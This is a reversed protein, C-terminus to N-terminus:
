RERYIGDSGSRTSDRQGVLDDVTIAAPPAELSKPPAPPEPSPPRAKFRRGTNIDRIGSGIMIAFVIASILAIVAYVGGLIASGGMAMLQTFLGAVFIALKAPGAALVLLVIGRITRKAAATAAAHTEVDTPDKAVAAALADGVLGLDTGCQRCYRLESASERGCKPCFISEHASVNGDYEV